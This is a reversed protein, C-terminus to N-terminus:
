KWRGIKEWWDLQDGFNRTVAEKHKVGTSTTRSNCNSSVDIDDYNLDLPLVLKSPIPFMDQVFKHNNVIFGVAQRHVTLEWRAQTADNRHKNYSSILQLVKDKTLSPLSQFSMSQIKINEDNKYTSEISSSYHEKHFRRTSTCKQSGKGEVSEQSDYELMMLKYYEMKIEELAMLANLVKQGQKGLAKGMTGRLEDELTKLHLAPDHSERIKDIYQDHKTTNKM